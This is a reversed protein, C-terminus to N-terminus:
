HELMKNSLKKILSQTSSKEILKTHDVQRLLFLEEPREDLRSGIGYLVAAVHKCMDAWDFCSCSLKIEKPEPFLGKVPHTIIEMVSKSFGGMLLEILSNIKGSCDKILADWKSAKVASISINVKYLSSGLVLANIEGSRVQLDIVFGNRVYTRGRPLRNEYDSYSELHDCWAKGWFTKAIQKGEIHIPQLALGKKKLETAKRVAKAKRKAVPVYPAFGGYGYRSM